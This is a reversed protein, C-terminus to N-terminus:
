YIKEKKRRKLKETNIILNTFVIIMKMTKIMMIM